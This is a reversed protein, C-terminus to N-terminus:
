RSTLVFALARCPSRSVDEDSTHSTIWANFRSPDVMYALGALLPADRWGHQRFFNNQKFNGDLAVFLTHMWRISRHALLSSYPSAGYLLDKDARWNSPLNQQPDPCARCQLALEGSETGSAGGPQLFRGSHRFMKTVRYQRVM